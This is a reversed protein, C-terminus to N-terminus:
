GLRTYPARRRNHRVALGAVLLITGVVAVASLVILAAFSGSEGSEGSVPDMGSPSGPPAAALMLSRAFPLGEMVDDTVGDSGTKMMQQIVSDVAESTTSQPGGAPGTAANEPSQALELLHEMLLDRLAVMMDQKLKAREAVFQNKLTVMDAIKAKFAMLAQPDFTTFGLESTKEWAKKTAGLAMVEKAQLFANRTDNLSQIAAGFQTALTEKVNNLFSDQAQNGALLNMGLPNAGALNKSQTSRPPRGGLKASAFNQWKQRKEISAQIKNKIFEQKKKGAASSWWPNTGAWAKWQAWPYKTTTVEGQNSQTSSKYQTQVPEAPVPTPMAQTATEEGEAQSADLVSDILSDGSVPAIEDDEGVENDGNNEDDNNEVAVINKDATEDEKNDVNEEVIADRVNESEADLGFIKQIAHFPQSEVEGGTFNDRVAQFYPISRNFLAEAMQQRLQAKQALYKNKEEVMEMVKSKFNVLGTLSFTFLGSGPITEVLWPKQSATENLTSKVKMFAAWTENLNAIEPAFEEELEERLNEFFSAKDEAQNVELDTFKGEENTQNLALGTVLLWYLLFVNLLYNGKFM